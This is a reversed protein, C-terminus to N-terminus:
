LIRGDASITVVNWPIFKQSNQLATKVAHELGGCCPVQMRVITVSRIDNQRIIETLKEAYNVSDLKPCGILTIKNKMFKHHFNGYAYASCDAAVLLDAGSFYPANVPVLKIQM